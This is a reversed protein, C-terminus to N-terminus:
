VCTSRHWHTQGAGLVIYLVYQHYAVQKVLLTGTPDAFLASVDDGDVHAPPPLGAVAVVTPFVDVLDTFSATKMGASKM